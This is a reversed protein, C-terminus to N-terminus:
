HAVITTCTLGFGDLYAESRTEVGSAVMGAGCDTVPDTGGGNGGAPTLTTVFGTSVAKDTGITLPACRLAVQDLLLGHRPRFGVVVQDDPCFSPTNGSDDPGAWSLTQGPDLVISVGDNAVRPIACHGRAGDVLGQQVSFDFGVLVSGSPCLDQETPNSTVPGRLPTQTAGSTTLAPLAACGGARCVYASPCITAPPSECRGAGNCTSPPSYIQVSCREPACVTGARYQRCAGAGDCLGDRGCTSQLQAVCVGRPDAAGAPVPTCTGPAAPLACSLCADICASDCCVGDTCHGSSCDGAVVCAAGNPELARADAADSGAGDIAAADRVDVGADGGAQGGLRVELRRTQNQIFSTATTQVDVTMGMRIGTVVVHLVRGTDANPILALSLPLSNEPRTLDYDRVLHTPSRDGWADIRLADLAGPVPLDTSVSLLVETAGPACAATGLVLLAGFLRKM